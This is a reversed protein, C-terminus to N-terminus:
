RGCKTRKVRTIVAGRDRTGGSGRYGREVSCTPIEILRQPHTIRTARASAREGRRSFRYGDRGARQGLFQWGGPQHGHAM